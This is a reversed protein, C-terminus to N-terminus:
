HIISEPFLELKSIGRSRLLRLFQPNRAIRILNWPKAGAPKFPQRARKSFSGEHTAMMDSADEGVSSDGDVRPKRNPVRGQAHWSGDRLEEDSIM